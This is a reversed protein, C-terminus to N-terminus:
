KNFSYLYLHWPLVLSINYIYIKFIASDLKWFSVVYYIEFGSKATKYTQPKTM